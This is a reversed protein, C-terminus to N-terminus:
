KRQGISCYITDAKHLHLRRYDETIHTEFTETCRICCKNESGMYPGARWRVGDATLLPNPRSPSRECNVDVVNRCKRVGVGGKDVNTLRM